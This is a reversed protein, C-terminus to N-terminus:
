KKPSSLDISEPELKSLSLEDLSLKKDNETKKNKIRHRMFIFGIVLIIFLIGTIIAIIVWINSWISTQTEQEITGTAKEIHSTIPPMVVKAILELQQSPLQLEIERGTRTTAYAKGSFTYTGYDIETINTFVGDTSIKGASHAIFQGVIKNNDDKIIGNISVSEPDLEESDIKFTFLAEKSGYEVAHSKYTIPSPFVVADKNQNRIFVDNKTRINLLYRGPKLNIYVHATLTGDFPL